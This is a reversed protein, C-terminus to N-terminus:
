EVIPEIKYKSHYVLWRSNEQLAKEGLDYIIKKQQAIDETMELRDKAMSFNYFMLKFNHIEEEYGKIPLYKEGIFAAVAFSVGSAFLLPHCLKGFGTFSYYIFLGITLVAGLMYVKQEIDKLFSLKRKRNRIANEYYNIQEDIWDVKICEFDISRDQQLTELFYINKLVVRIWVLESVEDLLYYDGARQPEKDICFWFGQVRLAESMGRSHAFHKELDANKFFGYYFVFMLIVVVFYGILFTLEVIHSEKTTGFNHVIEMFLLALFAMCLMFFSFINYRKQYYNAENSFTKQLGDVSIVTSNTDNLLSNLRDLHGLISRYDREEIRGMYENEIEYPNKINPNKVRPTRLHVIMDEENVDLLNEVYERRKKLIVDATGGVKPESDDGDWLALLINSHKALYDALAEYGGSKDKQLTKRFTARSYLEEFRAIESVDDFSQLYAEKQYPLVAILEVGIELAVEAVLMDAGEALASILIINTNQNQEKLEFFFGKVRERLIPEDEKILDRHGTVSVILPISTENV